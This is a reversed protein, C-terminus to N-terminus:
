KVAAKKAKAWRAKQAAAIRARAEPSLQRKKSASKAGPRSPRATKDSGTLIAPVQELRNIEVDIEALIGKTEMRSLTATNDSGFGSGRKPLLNYSLSPILLQRPTLENNACRARM